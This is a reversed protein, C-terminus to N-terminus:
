SFVKTIFGREAEVLYKSTRYEKSLKVIKDSIGKENVINNLFRTINNWSRLTSM